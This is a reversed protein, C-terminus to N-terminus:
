LRSLNGNSERAIIERIQKEEEKLSVTWKVKLYKKKKILDDFM